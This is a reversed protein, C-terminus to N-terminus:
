VIEAVDHVVAILGLVAISLWVGRVVFGYMTSTRLRQLQDLQRAGVSVAVVAAVVAIFLVSLPFLLVLVMPVIWHRRGQASWATPRAVRDVAVGIAAAFLAPLAIFLGIALWTPKLLTFDVGHSHVLMSGAVAAAAAATTCRRFWSPGILWPAVLRYVCAGILGVVAGINLLNYTGGLTVRGIIFGDDSVVGHVTDPSTLRLVFMALRSGIGVVVVGTFIGAVVLVRMQDITDAVTASRAPTNAASESPGLNSM